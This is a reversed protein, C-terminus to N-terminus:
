PAFLAALRAFSETWGRENDALPVGPPVGEHLGIVLTGGDETDALEITARMEGQLEPDDTEFEDVEVVREDPVIELFRGRYTDTHASSKGEPGPADYTLSIRIAGGERPELAHIECTMGAPFRWRAPELIAAFVM